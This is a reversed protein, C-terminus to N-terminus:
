DLNKLNTATANKEADTKERAFANFSECNSDWEDKRVPLKKYSVKIAIVDQASIKTELFNGPKIQNGSLLETVSIINEPMEMKLVKGEADKDMSNYITYIIKDKGPFKNILIGDTESKILPEPNSSSFADSNDAMIAATKAMKEVVNQFGGKIWRQPRQTWIADGNFLTYKLYKLATEPKDKLSAFPFYAFCKVSPFAFRFLNVPIMSDNNELYVHTIVGDIYQSYVDGGMFETFFAIKEPLVKRLDKYLVIQPELCSEMPVPHGHGPQYCRNAGEVSYGMTDWYIFDFNMDKYVEDMRRVLHERYEPPMICTRFNPEQHYQIKQNDKNWIYWNKNEALMKKTIESEVYTLGPSIYIGMKINSDQFLKIRRCFESKNVTINYDGLGEWYKGDKGWWWSGTDIITGPQGFFERTEKFEPEELNYLREWIFTKAVWDKRPVSPKYWTSVWKKYINYAQHWDGEHIGIIFSPFTKESNPELSFNQYLVGASFNNTKRFLFVKYKAETDECLMFLGKSKGPSFIDIIQMPFHEGYQGSFGYDSMKFSKNSIVGGKFPLCYWQNEIKDGLNINELSPFTLSIRESVKWANTISIKGRMQSNELEFDLKIRLNEPYEPSIIFSIKDKVNKKFEKLIYKNAVTIPTHFKMVPFPSVIFNGGTTLDTFASLKLNGDFIFDAKIKDNQIAYTKDAQVEGALASLSLLSGLAFMLFLNKRM